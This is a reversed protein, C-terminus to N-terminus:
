PEAPAAAPEEPAIKPPKDPREKRPGKALGKEGLVLERLDVKAKLELTDASLQLLVTGYLIYISEGQVHMQIGGGRAGGAAFEQWRERLADARAKRDARADDLAPAEEAGRAAEPPAPAKAAPADQALVAGAWLGLMVALLGTLVIRTQMKPM